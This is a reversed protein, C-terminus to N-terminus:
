NSELWEGTRAHHLYNEAKGAEVTWPDKGNQKTAM